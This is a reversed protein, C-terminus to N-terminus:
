HRSDNIRTLYQTLNELIQDATKTWVYPKPDHNSHEIWARIDTNLERVTRHTGRRLKRTTLEAFWREVLNLWSASTPTFHLVFRPHLGRQERFGAYARSSRHVQEPVGVGLERHADVLVNEVQACFALFGKGAHEAAVDALDTQHEGPPGRARGLYGRKSV